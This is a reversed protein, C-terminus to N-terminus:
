PKCGISRKDAELHQELELPLGIKEMCGHALVDQMFALTRAQHVPNITIKDLSVGKISGTKKLVVDLFRLSALINEQTIAQATNELRVRVLNLVYTQHICLKPLATFQTGDFDLLPEIPPDTFMGNLMIISNRINYEPSCDFKTIASLQTFLEGARNVLAFGTTSNCRRKVHETLKNARLFNIINKETDLNGTHSKKIVDPYEKAFKTAEQQNKVLMIEFPKGVWAIEQWIAQPNTCYTYHTLSLRGSHKGVLILAACTALDKTSLGIADSSTVNPDLRAIQNVGSLIFHPM